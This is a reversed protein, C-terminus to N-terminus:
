RTFLEHQKGQLMGEVKSAIGQILEPDSVFDLEDGPIILVQSLSFGDIWAEYLTNLSAIYEATISREFERSRKGIRQMLTDVSARIYVILDPPKLLTIFLEYLSRYTAYDRRSMHGQQYLNLAFIEADEYVSRDQVVSAANGLLEDHAKMRHALFFVQSQFAWSRMDRYFDELYPNETVPEYYPQWSLARCLGHVLSSKGAGINGALAVFHKVM